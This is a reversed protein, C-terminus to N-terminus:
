AIMRQIFGMDINDRVMAALRDLAKEQFESYNVPSDLPLLGKAIRVQNIIGAQLLRKRFDWPSLYGLLEREDLGDKVLESDPSVRRLQFLGIDARARAWTSRM